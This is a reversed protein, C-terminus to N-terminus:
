RLMLKHPPLRLVWLWETLQLSFFVTLQCPSTQMLCGITLSPFPCHSKGKLQDFLSLLTITLNYFPQSLAPVIHQTQSHTKYQGAYLLYVSGKVTLQLPLLTPVPENYKSNSLCYFVRLSARVGCGPSNTNSIMLYLIPSFTCFYPTKLVCM